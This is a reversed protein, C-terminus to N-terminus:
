ESRYLWILAVFMVVLWGVVWAFSFPLGLIFPRITAVQPYVPWVLALTTIALIALFLIRRGRQKASLDSRFLVLGRPVENANEMRLLRIPPNPVKTQEILFSVGAYLLLVPPFYCPLRMNVKISEEM